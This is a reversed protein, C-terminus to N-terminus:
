KPAASRAVRFGNAPELLGVDDWPKLQERCWRLLEAEAAWAGDRRTHADGQRHMQTNKGAPIDELRKRLHRAVQRLDKDAHLLFGQPLDGSDLLQRESHIASVFYLCCAARFLGFSRKAATYCLSVIDDIWRVEGTVSESYAKLSGALSAQSPGCLLDALRTVGMLTHAIGTSHLPDVLGATTPLMAWSNSAREGLTSSTRLATESVGAAASWLRSIRPIYGLQPEHGNVPAVLDAQSLLDALTPYPRLSESWAAWRQETTQMENPNALLSATTHPQVIGVSTTGEGFRLMWVWGNELLHHQAADDGDFPDACTSVRHDRLWQTMSGVGRFHGFLAATQTQLSNDLRALRLANGLVDGRGTADVVFEAAFCEEAGSDGHRTAISWGDHSCNVSEVTRNAAHFVGARIAQRCLWADVDSRMWHTDSVADSSSAAVLYSRTHSADDVFARGPVHAYYSFGRKLGVRLDAHESQWTGWRSLSRLGSLQWRDALRELLFDALPTSSEGIAFRPHDSRDILVVSRGSQALCWALLSGGFGSGLICIDAKM